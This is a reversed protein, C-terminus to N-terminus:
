VNYGRQDREALPMLDPRSAYVVSLVTTTIMAEGVGIVVHVGVMAPLAVHIPSTGSVALELACAASVLVISLWSTIAAAAIFGKKTKPLLKKFILFIFYSSFGGVIGMNFINSGLATLGGDAFGLCQIVLVLTMILCAAYPGMLIAALAAGLFHGSTGGGVPFNIMQAAFIFSATVGLLPVQKESFDANCRKISYGGILASAAYTAININGSLFGDPIHM